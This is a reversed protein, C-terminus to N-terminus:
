VDVALSPVVREFFQKDAQVNDTYMFSMPKHGHEHLSKIIGKLPREIHHLHKTPTFVMQRIQEYENTITWLSGFLQRIHLERLVREWSHSTLGQAIGSRILTMLKKDIGSRHTLFAPFENGLNGPLQTLIGQDYMNCGKGCTECRLRKTLVYYCSDLDVVRRAIPNSNWG